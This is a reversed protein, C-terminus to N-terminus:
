KRERISNKLINDLQDIAQNLGSRDLLIIQRAVSINLCSLLKQMENLYDIRNSYSIKSRLMKILTKLKNMTEKPQNIKFM